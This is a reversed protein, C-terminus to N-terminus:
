HFLVIASIPETYIISFQVTKSNRISIWDWVHLVRDVSNAIGLIEGSQIHAVGKPLDRQLFLTPIYRSEDGMQAQEPPLKHRLAM